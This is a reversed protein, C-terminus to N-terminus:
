EVSLPRVCDLVLTADESEEGEDPATLSSEKLWEDFTDTAGYFEHLNPHCLHVTEDGDDSLTDFTESPSSGAELLRVDYPMAPLTTELSNPVTVTEDAPRGLAWDIGLDALAELAGESADMFPIHAMTPRVATQDEFADLSRSFEEHAQEYSVDAMPSHHDGHLIIEHGADDLDVLVEALEALDRRLMSFGATTDTAELRERLQRFDDPEYAALVHFTRANLARETDASRAFALFARVERRKPEPITRM